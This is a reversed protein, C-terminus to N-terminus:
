RGFRTLATHQPERGELLASVLEFIADAPPPCGQLFYDVKVIEHVPSVRDLLPPIVECPGTKTQVDRGDFYGRRMVNETGEHNKMASVNGTIACDGFSILLKTKQRIDLLKKLDEESSIAGEMLTIDVNNPFVKTDVYPSYVFEAKAAIELIREDQDLFSMHCGSCGDLWITALRAKM